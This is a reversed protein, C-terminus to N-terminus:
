HLDLLTDKWFWFKGSSIPYRQVWPKVLLHLPWYTLPFIPAERMLINDAQVYLATRDKYDAILRAQGILKEFESNQWGTSFRELGLRLFNDPDPYDALWGIIFIYPQEQDLHNALESINVVAPEITIGLETQWQERLFAAHATYSISSYLPIIPIGGGGPYGAEQLLKRAHDPDYSLGAEASHGPIGPPIFGGLAPYEFGGLANQALTHRDIAQTFAQRVRLDNFPPVQTNFRAINTSPWPNSIYEDPFRERAEAMEEASLRGLDLIDLENAAYMELRSQENDCWFLEVHEVNGSARGHYSPNQVLVMQCGAQWSKLRFPGNTVLNAPDIWDPGCADWLHHPIPSASSQALLHLMHGTPKNLDIVLKFPDPAQIGLIHSNKEKGTHFEEAGKIDFFLNAFPSEVEPDLMRRFAYIFDVATVQSDDSWLVDDRLHFVYQMGDASIEWKHAVDPVINMNQDLTVLGSFLQEVVGEWNGGEILTLDPPKQQLGYWDVRLPHDPVPSDLPSQQFESRQRIAFGTKYAQQSQKFDLATLYTQGLKLFTEATRADDGMEKLLSVAREYYNIADQNAHINLARDGALLLYQAAKRVSQSNTNRGQWFHFALEAAKEDVQSGSLKELELGARSHLFQRRHSSLETYVVEQIKHHTFVYDRDILGSGDVIIQHRLMQDLADLVVEEAQGWVAALLDFDFDIGLVAAVRLAEQTAGDLRHVRSLIVESIRDPLPLGNQYTKDFDGQWTGDVFTIEGSGFLAKITEVLFLPNGKTEQYLGRAFPIIKEGLGSLGQVLQETAKSSLPLLPFSQMFGEKDLQQCFAKLPHGEGVIDSRYSGVILLPSSTLHRTLYHVLELTSETAWHLDELVLLLPDSSSITKLFNAVGAFLHAQEQIVGSSAGLGEATQNALLGPILRGMEVLVWDPVSGSDEASLELLLPRLAEAFPQYPLQREFEYCRGWLGRKGLSRLNTTFKELLCTKGVGPEGHVLILGGQGTQAAAWQETLFTLEQDRGVLVERAVIDLPNSGTSTSKLSVPEVAVASVPGIEYQGSLIAQYLQTTEVMPEVNLEDGVIQRCLHYQELALNRQGLACYVRMLLRHANEHLSDIEMLQHGTSLASSFDGAKEQYIMLKSLAEILLTELRFRERIVWDNYFGDLFGGQYIDIAERLESFTGLKVKQEFHDADLNIIGDFSFQVTLSNAELPDHDPFCQRIHWLATSLSRRAKHSPSDGWFMDMLKERSHSQNRHFILFALLSQSKVTPPTTLVVAPPKQDDQWALRFRGLYNAELQKTEVSDPM